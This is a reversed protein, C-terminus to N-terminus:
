PLRKRIPGNSSVSGKSSSYISNESQIIAIGNVYEDQNQKIRKAIARDLRELYSTSVSRTENIVVPAVAAVYNLKTKKFAM